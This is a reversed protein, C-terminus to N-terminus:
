WRDRWMDEFPDQGCHYVPCRDTDRTAVRTAMPVYPIDCWRRGAVFRDYTHQGTTLVVAGRQYIMSQVQECTMRRADPRGQALLPSTLAVLALAAVALRGSM